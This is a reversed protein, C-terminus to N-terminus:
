GGDPHLNARDVQGVPPSQHLREIRGVGVHDDVGRRHARRIRDEPIGRFAPRDVDLAGRRQRGPAAVVIPPQEEGRGVQDEVASPAPIAFVVLRARDQRVAPGLGRGLLRHKSTGRPRTARM